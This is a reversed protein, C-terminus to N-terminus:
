NWTLTQMSHLPQLSCNSYNGETPSVSLVEECCNARPIRTVLPPLEYLLRGGIDVPATSPASVLGSTRPIPDPPLPISSPHLSPVCHWPSSNKRGIVYTHFSQGLSGKLACFPSFQKSRKKKERGQGGCYYITFENSTRPKKKWQKQTVKRKKKGETGTQSRTKLLWSAVPLETFVPHSHCPWTENVQISLFFM